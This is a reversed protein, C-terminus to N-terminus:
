PQKFKLKAEIYQRVFQIDQDKLKPLSMAIYDRDTIEVRWRAATDSFRKRNTGYLELMRDFIESKKPINMRGQELFNVMSTSCGVKEAVQSMSLGTKKRLGRLALAKPSGFDPHDSRKKKRFKKKKVPELEESSM